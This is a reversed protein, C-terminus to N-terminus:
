EHGFIRKKYERKYADKIEIELRTDAHRDIMNQIRERAVDPNGGDVIQNKAWSLAERRIESVLEPTVRKPADSYDGHGFCVRRDFGFQELV